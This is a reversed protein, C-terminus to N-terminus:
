REGAPGALRQLQELVRAAPLALEAATHRPACDGRLVAHIHRIAATFSRQDRTPHEVVPAAKPRLV